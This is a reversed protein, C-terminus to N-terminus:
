HLVVMHCAHWAATDGVTHRSHILSAGEYYSWTATHTVHINIDKYSVHTHATHQGVAV